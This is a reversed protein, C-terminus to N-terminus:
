SAITQFPRSAKDVMNVATELHRKDVDCLAVVKTGAYPIHGRGMSGTGVIAKTLMDSPALYGKGLV